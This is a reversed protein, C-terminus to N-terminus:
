WVLCIFSEIFSRYFLSFMESSVNFSRMERLSFLRQQIHKTTAEAHPEFCLKHALVVGLYKYSKVIEIDAAKIM